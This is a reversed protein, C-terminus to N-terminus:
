KKFTYRSYRNLADFCARVKKRNEKRLADKIWLGNEVMLDALIGRNLLEEKISHDLDYYLFGSSSRWHCHMPNFPMDPENTQPSNYNFTEILFFSHM